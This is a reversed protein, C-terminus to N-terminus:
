WGSARQVYRREAIALSGGGTPDTGDFLIDGDFAHLLVLWTGELEDDSM